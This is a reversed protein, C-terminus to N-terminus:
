GILRFIFLLIRHNSIRRYITTFISRIFYYPWAPNYWWGRWAYQIVKRLNLQTISYKAQNITIRTHWARFLKKQKPSIGEMNIYKEALVRNEMVNGSEPTNTDNNTLSKPHFLYRYFCKEVSVYNLGYLGLRIIFDRDSSYQYNTDLLGVKDFLEKRFFWANFIPTELTSNVLLDDPPFATYSFVIAQQGSPDKRYVKAGGLVALIASNRIFEDVVLVFIDKEYVDDTNLFGIIDGRAFSIGKNIADYLGNDPECVIKLHSYRQLTALTGDTSGGDIIIHEFNLYTQCLVSEVAHAIFDGGNLSPTIISILPASKKDVL